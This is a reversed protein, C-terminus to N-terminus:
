EGGVANLIVVLQRVNATATTVAQRRVAEQEHVDGAKDPLSQQAVVASAPMTTPTASPKTVFALAPQSATEKIKGAVQDAVKHGGDSRELRAMDGFQKNSDEGKKHVADGGARDDAASKFRYDTKAHALAGADKDVGYGASSQSVNQKARIENLESVIQRMQNDTIAVEYRVQKPTVQTQNYFNARGQAGSVDKPAGAIEVVPKISNEGFVHEVERQTLLLNDTNIFVNTTEATAPGGVEAIKGEAIVPTKSPYPTQRETQQPHTPRNLWTTVMVGVGVALLVIAAHALHGMRWRAVPGGRRAPSDSRRGAHRRHARKLVTEAMGAPAQAPPIDQVLSQVLRLSELEASLAPDAAVMEDVMRSEGESLEGDLYASLQESIKEKDRMERNWNGGIREM